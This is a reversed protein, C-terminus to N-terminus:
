ARRGRDREHMKEKELDAAMKKKKIQRRRGKLKKLRWRAAKKEKAKEVALTSTM